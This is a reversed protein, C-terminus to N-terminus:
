FLSYFCACLLICHIYEGSRFCVLRVDDRDLFIWVWILTSSVDKDLNDAPSVRTMGLHEEDEGDETNSILQAPCQHLSLKLQLTKYDTDGPPGTEPLVPHPSPEPLVSHYNGYRHHILAVSHDGGRGTRAQPTHLAASQGRQLAGRVSARHRLCRPAPALSAGWGIAPRVRAVCTHKLGNRTFAHTCIDLLHVRYCLTM